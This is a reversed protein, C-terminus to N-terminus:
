VFQEGAEKVHDELTTRAANQLVKSGQKARRRILTSKSTGIYSAVPM